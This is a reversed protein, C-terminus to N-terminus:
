IMIYSLVEKLRKLLDNQSTLKSLVVRNTVTNFLSVGHCNKLLHKPPFMAKESEFILVLISKFGESWM